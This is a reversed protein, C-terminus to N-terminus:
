LAQAESWWAKLLAHSDDADAQWLQKQYERNIEHLKHQKKHGKLSFLDAWKEWYYEQQLLWNDAELMPKYVSQCPLSNGTMWLQKESDTLKAIMSQTTESPRHIGTSHMCVDGNSSPREGLKHQQLVQAIQPVLADDFNLQSLQQINCERRSKAKGAWPMFWTSFVEQFDFPKKGKYLGLEFATVEIEPSSLDFDRGITLANSIAVIQPTTQHVFRKAVWCKGATELQWVENQDALLFSNDYFFSKNQYGAPGGQGYREIYNTIVLLADYATKSEELGLRVLDMGLLAKKKREILKTFVAENGICVGHENMGMEAGWMWDPRSIWTAFTSAPRQVTLYTLQSQPSSQAAHWEVRQPELPERDSNKAFYTEGNILLALTDCM